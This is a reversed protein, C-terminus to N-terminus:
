LQLGAKAEDQIKEERQWTDMAGLVSSINFSNYAKLTVTFSAGHDNWVQWITDSTRSTLDEHLSGLAVSICM